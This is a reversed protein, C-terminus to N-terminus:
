DRLLLWLAHISGPLVGLITLLINLIFQLGIGQSLLVSVPPLFLALLIHIIKSM